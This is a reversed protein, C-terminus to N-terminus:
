RQDQALAAIEIAIYGLLLIPILLTAIWFAKTRVREVYERRVVAFTKKWNM